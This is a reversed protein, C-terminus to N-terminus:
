QMHSRGIAAFTTRDIKVDLGALHPHKGSMWGGGAGLMQAVAGAIQLTSNDGADASLRAERM